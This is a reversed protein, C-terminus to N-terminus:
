CTLRREPGDYCDSRTMNRLPDKGVIVWGDSREFKAIKNQALFLNFAKHAMRCVVGDTLEVRIMKMM